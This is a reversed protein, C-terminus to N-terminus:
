IIENTNRAEEMYNCLTETLAEPDSPDPWDPKMESLWREFAAKIEARTYTPEM